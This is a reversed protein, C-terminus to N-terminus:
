WARAPQGKWRSQEMLGRKTMERQREIALIVQLLLKMFNTMSVCAMCTREIAHCPALVESKLKTQPTQKSHRAMRHCSTVKRLTVKSPGFTTAATEHRCRFAVAMTMSTAAAAPTRPWTALETAPRAAVQSHQKKTCGLFFSVRLSHTSFSNKKQPPSRM